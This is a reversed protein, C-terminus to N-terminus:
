GRSQFTCNTISNLEWDELYSYRWFHKLLTTRTSCYFHLRTCASSFRYEFILVYELVANSFDM